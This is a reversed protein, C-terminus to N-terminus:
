NNADTVVMEKTVRAGYCLRLPSQDASRDRPFRLTSSELKVPKTSRPRLCRQGMQSLPLVADLSSTVNSLNSSM